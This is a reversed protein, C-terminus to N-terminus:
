ELWRSVAFVVEPKSLEYGGESKHAGWVHYQATQECYVANQAWFIDEPAPNRAVLRIKVTGLRAPQSGGLRLKAHLRCKQVRLLERGLEVDVEDDLDKAVAKEVIM